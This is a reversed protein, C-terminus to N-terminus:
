AMLRLYEQQWDREDSTLFLLFEHVTTTNLKNSIKTEVLERCEAIAANPPCRLGISPYSGMYTVCTVDIEIQRGILCNSNKLSEVLWTLTALAIIANKPDAFFEDLGYPDVIDDWGKDNM